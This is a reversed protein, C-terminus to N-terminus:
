HAKLTLKGKKELNLFMNKFLRFNMIIIGFNNKFLINIKPSIIINNIQIKM